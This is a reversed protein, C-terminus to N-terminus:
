ECIKNLHVGYEIARQPLDCNPEFISFHNSSLDDIVETSGEINGETSGETDKKHLLTNISLSKRSPFIMQLQILQSWLLESYISWNRGSSSAYASHLTNELLVQCKAFSQLSILFNVLLGFFPTLLMQGEFTGGTIGSFDFCQVIKM